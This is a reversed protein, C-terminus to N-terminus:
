LLSLALGFLVNRRQFLLLLLLKSLVLLLVLPRLRTRLILHFALRFVLQALDLLRKLTLTLVENGLQQVADTLYVRLRVAVQM